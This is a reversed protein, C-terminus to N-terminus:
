RNWKSPTTIYVPIEVLLNSLPQANKMAKLNDSLQQSDNLGIIVHDISQNSFCYNLLSGSLTKKHKEQLSKIIPAVFSFNPMLKEQPLFFLGQLFASRTHVECGMSKLLEIYQDFRHDFYNYPIQVLDPYMELKMIGDVEEPLNFSFGIKQVLGKQKLTQLEIWQDPNEIVVSARHALYGYLSDVKLNKLSQFLQKEILDGNEPPLFKSVVKFKSLDFKGLVKESEGYGSATDLVNIGNESALTLIKSVEELSTQGIINSIGYPTGFQVTGIGLRNKM